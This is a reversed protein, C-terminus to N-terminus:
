PGSYRIRLSFTIGYVRHPVTLSSLLLLLLLLLLNLLLILLFIGEAMASNIDQVSNSELLLRVIDYQRNKLAVHLSNWGALTLYKWDVLEPHSIFFQVLSLEGKGAARRLTHTFSPILTKPVYGDSELIFDMHVELIALVVEWMGRKVALDLPLM